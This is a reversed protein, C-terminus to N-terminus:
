NLWRLQVGEGGFSVFYISRLPKWGYKFKMEQLIQVLSLLLATGFNPYMAGTQASSRTAAIIIAKEAQEKGEIKGIIDLVPQTERIATEVKLNIRVDGNGSHLGDSFEVGKSGLANLLQQAQNFSLPLSPIHPISSADEPSIPGLVDGTWGPTLIDGSGFQPLAVSRQQVVDGDNANLKESRFLVARANYRMALMMQESVLTDYDLLLAYDGDLLGNEKLTKLDAETGKNGYILKVGKLEGNVSLANFNNENLGINVIESDDGDIGKLIALSASGPYNSYGLFELERILKLRNNTFSEM